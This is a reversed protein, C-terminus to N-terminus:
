EGSLNASTVSGLFNAGEISSELCPIMDRASLAWEGEGFEAMARFVKLAVQVADYLEYAAMILSARALMKESSAKAISAIPINNQDLIAPMGDPDWRMHWIGPQAGDIM